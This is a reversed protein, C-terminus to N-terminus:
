TAELPRWNYPRLPGKIILPARSLLDKFPLGIPYEFLLGQPVFLSNIHMPGKLPRLVSILIGELCSALPRILGGLAKYPGQPGDGANGPMGQGGQGERAEDPTWPRTQSGQGKTEKM